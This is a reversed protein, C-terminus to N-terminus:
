ILLGDEEDWPEEPMLGFDGPPIGLRRCLSATAIEDLRDSLDLGGPLHAVLAGDSSIVYPLAGLHRLEYGYFRHVRDLFEGFTLEWPHGARAREAELEEQPSWSTPLDSGPRRRDSM